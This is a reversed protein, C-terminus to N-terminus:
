EAELSGVDDTHCIHFSSRASSERSMREACLKRIIMRYRLVKTRVDHSGYVGHSGCTWLRM